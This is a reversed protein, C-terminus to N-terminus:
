LRAIDFTINVSHYVVYICCTYQVTYQKLWTIFHKEFLIKKKLINYTSLCFAGIGEELQRIAISKQGSLM